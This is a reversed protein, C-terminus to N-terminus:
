GSIDKLVLTIIAGLVSILVLAAAGNVMKKVPAFEEKTVYNAKLLTSLGHIENGYDNVKETMGKMREEFRAMMIKMEQMVENDSHRDSM